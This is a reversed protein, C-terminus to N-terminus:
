RVANDVCTVEQSEGFTGLYVPTVVDEKSLVQWDQMVWVITVTMDASPKMRNWSSRITISDADREPLCPLQPYFLRWQQVSVRTLLVLRECGPQKRTIARVERMMDRLILGQIVKATRTM